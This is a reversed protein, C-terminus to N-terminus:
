ANAENIARLLDEATSQIVLQGTQPDQFELTTDGVKYTPTGVIQDLAFQDNAKEVFDSFARGDYLEQFKTLDDGGIGVMAPFDVRLQQDTFGVGEEPQNQFIVDHFERFKGVADASAGALAARESSDNGLNTDLFHATRVEATIRGADVLQKVASGYFEEYESCIPCQSDEYIVLHPADAAPEVDHTKLKMGYGETASPLAEEAQGRTQMADRHSPDATNSM